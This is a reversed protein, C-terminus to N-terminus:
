RRCGASYQQHSSPCRTSGPLLSLVTPTTGGNWITPLSVDEKYIVGAIQGTNNIANAASSVEGQITGLKTILYEARVVTPQMLLFNLFAFAVLGFTPNYMVEVWYFGM